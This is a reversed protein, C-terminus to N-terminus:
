TREYAKIHDSVEKCISQMIFYENVRELSSKNPKKKSEIKQKNKCIAVLESYVKQNM